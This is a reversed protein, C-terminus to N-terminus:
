ILCSNLMSILIENQEDPIAKFDIMVRGKSIYNLVPVQCSRLKKSLLDPKIKDSQISIAVSPVKETPLSGSGTEVQTDVIELNNKLLIKPNIKKIVKKVSSKIKKLDRNLLLISLNSNDVYSSNQYTRLIIEILAIRYKDCRLARYMPNKHILNLYKKKGSLIGGQAGGILKDGSYSVVDVGKNIYYKVEKEVPLNLKSLDTIAGSGLDFLLAVKKRKALKILEDLKVEETFGIIKYNSTHVLLIAGTNKTIANEYDDLHTKNTTGVEVMKCGSSEIVEPIRFSGGIEVLQGRSVIVEKDKCISNLMLMVAAANNNVIVSKESKVMSNLLNDIHLLREGRRGTELNLELNCYPYITNSVQELIEKSLPARGLGTNLVIGTGNIVSKLSPNEIKKIASDISAKVFEKIKNPSINNSLIEKRITDLVNNLTEKIFPYPASICSVDIDQLIKDVSPIKQLTERVDKNSSM